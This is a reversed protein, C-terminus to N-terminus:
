ASAVRGRGCAGVAGANTLRAGRMPPAPSSAARVAAPSSGLRGRRVLRYRSGPGAAAAARYRGCGPASLTRRGTAAARGRRRIRRAAAPRPGPRPRLAPRPRARAPPQRPAPPRAAPWGATGGPGRRCHRWCCTGFVGAPRGPPEAVIVAAAPAGIAAPLIGRVSRPVPGVTRGHRLPRSSTAKPWGIRIGHQGLEARGIDADPDLCQVADAGAAGPEREVLAEAALHPPELFVGVRTDAGRGQMDLVVGALDLRHFGAQIPGGLLAPTVAVGAPDAPMAVGPWRGSAAASIGERTAIPDAAWRGATLAPGRPVRGHRCSLPEPAAGPRGAWTRPPICSLATCWRRPVCRM